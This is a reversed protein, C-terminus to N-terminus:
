KGVPFVVAVRPLVEACSGCWGAAMQFSALSMLKVPALYLNM